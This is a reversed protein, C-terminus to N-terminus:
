GILAEFLRLDEEYIVRLNNHNGECFSLERGIHHMFVSCSTETLPHNIKYADIFALRLAGLTFVEPSQLTILSYADIHKISKKDKDIIFPTTEELYTYTVASGYKKCCHIANSITEADVLPRTSEQLIIIDSTKHTSTLWEIANKVSEVGKEGAPIIGNFKTINYKKTYAPLFDEWGEVCVVYIEDVLPHRQYAEMTYIIIPKEKVTVFQYPIKYKNVHLKGGALIVAACKRRLGNHQTTNKSIIKGSYSHDKEQLKGTILHDVTTNLINALAFLKNQPLNSKNKEIKTISSRTKFGLADALEQQSLHLKIRRNRINEGLTM